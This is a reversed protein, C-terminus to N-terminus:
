RTSLSKLKLYIEVSAQCVRRIHRYHKQSMGLNNCYERCVTIVPEIKGLDFLVTGMFCMANEVNSPTPPLSAVNARVANAM